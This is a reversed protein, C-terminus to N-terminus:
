EIGTLEKFKDLTMMVIWPQRDARYAVVDPNEREDLIWDYATKFGSARRKVEVKITKGQHPILVDNSFEGGSAGSLPVKAGGVLKAFELEARAGKNRSKKGPM